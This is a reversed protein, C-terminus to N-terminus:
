AWQSKLSFTLRASQVPKKEQTRLVEAEIELQGFLIGPGIAPKTKLQVVLGACSRAHPQQEVFVLATRQKEVVRAFRFWTTLPIKSVLREPFVSLDVAILGFVGSQILIDTAKFAQELPPLDQRTKGCRIWLLRSLNVGAAEASAPDFSDKADVLACYHEHSARALLSVMVSTKGSGCIESLASMPIGGTVLDVQPIGTSISHREHRKHTAFATPICAEIQARLSSASHMLFALYIRKKKAERFHNESLPWCTTLRDLIPALLAIIKTPV